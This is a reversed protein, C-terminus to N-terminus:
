KFLSTSTIARLVIGALSITGLVSKPYSATLSQFDPSAFVALLITAFFIVTRWGKFPAAPPQTQQENDNM